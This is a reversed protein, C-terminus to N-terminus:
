CTIVSSSINLYFISLEYQPLGRFKEASATIHISALKMCRARKYCYQPLGRFKEASATIHISALKM